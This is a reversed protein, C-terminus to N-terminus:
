AWSAMRKAISTNTEAAGCARMIQSREMMSQPISSSNAIGQLQKLKDDSLFLPPV